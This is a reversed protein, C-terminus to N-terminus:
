PLAAGAGDRVAVECAGLPRLVEGTDGVALSAWVSRLERWDYVRRRPRLDGGLQDGVHDCRIAGCRRDYPFAAASLTRSTGFPRSVRHVGVDVAPAADRPTLASELAIGCREHASGCGGPEDGAGTIRSRARSEVEFTPQLVRSGDSGAGVRVGNFGVISGDRSDRVLARLSPRDHCCVRSAARSRGRARPRASRASVPCRPGRNEECKDGGDGADARV